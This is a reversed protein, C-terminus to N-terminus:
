FSYSTTFLLVTGQEFTDGDDSLTQQSVPFRVSLSTHVGEGLHFEGGVMWNTSVLGSNIDRVGDWHAYGQYFGTLSTHTTLWEATAHSLGVGVTAETPGQYGKRNEYLPFRGLGFASARLEWPLPYSYYM